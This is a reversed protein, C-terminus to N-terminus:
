GRNLIIPIETASFINRQNNQVKNENKIRNKALKFAVNAMYNQMKHTSDIPTKPRYEEPVSAIFRADRLKAAAIKADRKAAKM